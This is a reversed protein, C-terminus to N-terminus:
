HPKRKLKLHRAQRIQVQPQDQVHHPKRKLSTQRMRVQPQVQVHHPNRKLSTQRMRVVCCTGFQLIEEFSNHQNNQRSTHIQM